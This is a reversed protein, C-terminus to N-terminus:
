DQSLVLRFGFSDFWHDPGIRSRNAVRCSSDNNFWGGGRLVRSSGSNPGQPDNKPSSRYYSDSHWDSCWEWVNGTMDYLGLENPQKQAVPHTKGGSNYYYWGVDSIDNSGSYRYGKSKNGGRAAYEWEAETPLRYTKGSAKNMWECYAVAEDWRVYIVPRDGRGWGRDAPRARGTANCFVDYQEFTVETKSINFDSVTVSHVPKEDNYGSNSGMEFTGGEVFVMGFEHCDIENGDEDWCKDTIVEGNKYTREESKQGNEHWETWKGDPTGNKYSGEYETKGGLYNKFVDGSYLEKTDPHYKLGDKDILAEDNIPKSCGVVLMLATIILLTHKM